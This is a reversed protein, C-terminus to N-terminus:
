FVLVLFFVRIGQMLLLQQRPLDFLLTKVTSATLLLLGVIGITAFIIILFAWGAIDEPFMSTTSLGVHLLFLWALLCAGIGYHFRNTNSLSLVWLTYTIMLLDLGIMLWNSAILSM